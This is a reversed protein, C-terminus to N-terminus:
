PLEGPTLQLTAVEIHIEVDRLWFINTQQQWMFFFFFGFSLFFLLWENAWWGPPQCNPSPEVLFNKQQAGGSKSTHSYDAPPNESAQHDQITDCVHRATLPSDCPHGFWTDGSCVLGPKKVHHSSELFLLLSCAGSHLCKELSQKGCTTQPGM